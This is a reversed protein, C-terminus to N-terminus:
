TTSRRSCCATAPATRRRGALRAREARLARRAQRQGRLLDDVPAALLSGERYTKGDVTWDSRLSFLLRGRFFAARSATRRSTSSSSATASSSSRDGPPLVGPTRTVLDYRGDSLIESDRRVLRRRGAKGEFITKAASLPTGRKWLKVIRPYGSTTLSGPGFDTGVWLTDEDRWRSARSPRRFRSAAPSSSGEDEHRVRPLRPRGLRRALPQGHVARLGAAPLERRPLGLSKGDAKALADVDLVTEWQPTPRATPPSRRAGGSARARAVDDKWFNYVTDGLLEPTPIKEKSDLIELTRKYIPKYEPRAELVATTKANQEKAWALPRRARCTRSGSSPITTPRLRHSGWSDGPRGGRAGGDPHWRTLITM